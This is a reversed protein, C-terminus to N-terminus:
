GSVTVLSLRDWMGSSDMQLRDVSWALLERVSEMCGGRAALNLLTSGPCRGYDGTSACVLARKDLLM